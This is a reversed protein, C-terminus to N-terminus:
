SLRSPRLNASSSYPPREYASRKIRTCGWLPARVPMPRKQKEFATGQLIKPLMSGEEAYREMLAIGSLLTEGVDQIIIQQIAEAASKAEEAVEILEGPKFTGSWELLLAKKIAVIVNAALKKNDEFARVMGNLVMQVSEVNDAVGTGSIGDLDIEWM